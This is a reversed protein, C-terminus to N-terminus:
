PPPDEAGVAGEEGAEGMKAKWYVRFDPPPAPPASLPGVGVGPECTGGGGSGARARPWLSKKHCSMHLIQTFKSSRFCGSFIGWPAPLPGVSAGWHSPCRCGAPGGGGGAELFPRAVRITGLSALCTCWGPEKSLGTDKRVTHDCALRQAGRPKEKRMQWSPKLIYIKPGSSRWYSDTVRLGSQGPHPCDPPTRSPLPLCLASQWGQGLGGGRPQM